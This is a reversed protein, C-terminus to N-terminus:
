YKIVSKYWQHWPKGYTVRMLLPFIILIATAGGLVIFLRSIKSDNNATPEAGILKDQADFYLRIEDGQKVSSANIGLEELSVYKLTNQVYRVKTGEVTGARRASYQGFSSTFTYAITIGIITIIIGVVILTSIISIKFSKAAHEELETKNPKKLLVMGIRLVRSGRQIALANAFYSIDEM